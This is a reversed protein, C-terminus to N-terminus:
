LAKRKDSKKFNARNGIIKNDLMLPINEHTGAHGQLIQGRTFQATSCGMWDHENSNKWTIHAKM